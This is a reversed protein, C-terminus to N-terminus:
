FLRFLGCSDWKAQAGDVEEYPGKARSFRKLIVAKLDQWGVFSDQFNTQRFWKLAQGEMCM